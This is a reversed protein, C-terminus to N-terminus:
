LHLKPLDQDSHKLYVFSERGRKMFLCFTCPSSPANVGMFVSSSAAVVGEDLTKRQRAIHQIKGPTSWDGTHSIWVHRVCTHTISFAVNLASQINSSWLVEARFPLKSIM